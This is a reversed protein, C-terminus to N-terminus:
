GNLAGMRHLDMVFEEIRRDIASGDNVRTGNFNLVYTTGSSGGIKKATLEAIMDALPQGYKSTLPVINTGDYYEPGAEGIINHPDIYTPHTYIAGQAHYAAGAIGGTAHLKVGGVANGNDGGTINKVINVTATWAHNVLSSLSDWLSSVNSSADRTSVDVETWWDTGTTSALHQALTENNKEANSTDADVEATHDANTFADTQNSADQVAQKAQDTQAQVSFDKDGIKMNDLDIVNGSVDTITGDDSVTLSKPNLHMADMNQLRKILLDIDGGCSTLLNDFNQTGLDSLNQFSVGADSLKQSLQDISIGATALASYATANMGSLFNGINEASNKADDESAKVKDWGVGLGDMISDLSSASGDYAAIIRSMLTPDSNVAQTFADHDGICDNLSNAFNTISLEAKDGTGTFANLADDNIMISEAFSAGSTSAADALAKQIDALEQSTEAAKRMNRDSDLAASSEQAMGQSASMANMYLQKTESSWSAYDSLLGPMSKYDEVTHGTKEALQENLKKYADAAGQAGQIDAAWDNKAKSYEQDAQAKITGYTDSKALMERAHINNWIEQTNDQVKGTEDEIVGSGDGVVKYQTGCANNVQDIADQLEKQQSVSLGTKGAYTDIVQGARELAVYQDEYSQVAQAAVDAGKSATDIYEQHAQKANDISAKAKDWAASAEEGADQSARGAEDSSDNLDDIAQNLGDQAKQVKDQQAKLGQYASVILAIAGVAAAGIALWKLPTLGLISNMGSLKPIIRGMGGMITGNAAEAFKSLGSFAVAAPGVAGAIGGIGVILAKQNENLNSTVGTLGQFADNAAKIFPLMGQGISDGFAQANNKMIQLQGSFGEQKKEAERAADGADGWADSVGDWADQSMQLSDNLVDTTQTLGELGQKQRVSTIGLNTLTTEVSGGSDQVRKLGDIFSQLAGSPDNKWKDAFEDATMGAVDAFDQLTGKGENVEKKISKVSSGISEAFPKLSDPSNNLADMFDEVSMNAQEAYDAIATTGGAVAAEIQSMTKSMATGAAESNQGTSAIATSWALVQPTTMGIINSQSAIRMSVDMIASELTPSNNGLRVLSDAFNEMGGHAGDAKVQLDDMINALQGMNKSITESDIDTAIDLNSATEAFDQLDDAAIGLQGGMAEIELMQDASTFHTNSFDVASQRLGQLQQDTGNVTKAMDRYASDVTNASDLSYQGIQQIAPTVTSKLAYGISLLSDSKSAIGSTGTKANELETSVSKVESAAESAAVKTQEFEDVAKASEYAESAIKEADTLRDVQQQCADVNARATRYEQVLKETGAQAGTLAATDDFLAVQQKAESLAGKAEQLKQDVSQLNDRAKVLADSANLTQAALRDVGADKYAQLKQGLLEAKQQALEEKDALLAMQQEVAVVNEPDLELASNVQELRRDVAQTSTEVNRLQANLESVKSSKEVGSQTNLLAMQRAANGGQAEVQQLDAKMHSLAAVKDMDRAEDSLEVFTQKLSAIHEITDDPILNRGFVQQLKEAMDVSDTTIDQAAIGLEKFRAVSEESGINKADLKVGAIREIQNYTSALEANVANVREHLNQAKLVANETTSALQAVTGGGASLKMSGIQRYADKMRSLKQYLTESLNGMGTLQSKMTSLSSPDLKLASQMKKLDSQTKSAASSVYKLAAGISSTDAGIRITLGKYSDAM